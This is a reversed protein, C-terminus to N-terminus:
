GSLEFPAKTGIGLEKVSPRRDFIFLLNHQESAITISYPTKGEANAQFPSAGKEYLFSTMAARVGLDWRDREVGFTVAQHLLRGGAADVPANVDLGHNLLIRLIAKMREPVYEKEADSMTKRLWSRNMLQGALTSWSEPVNPKAGKAILFEVMAVQRAGIAFKLPTYTTSYGWPIENINFKADLLRRAMDIEGFLAAFHLATVREPRVRKRLRSRWIEKKSGLINGFVLQDGTCVADEINDRPLCGIRHLIEKRSLTQRELIGDEVAPTVPSLIAATPRKTNTVDEKEPKGGLPRAEGKKENRPLYTTIPPPICIGSHLSPSRTRPQHSAAPLQLAESQGTPTRNNPMTELDISNVLPRRPAAVVPQADLKEPWLQPPSGASSQSMAPSSSAPHETTVRNRAQQPGAGSLPSSMVPVASSYYGTRGALSSTTSLRSQSRHSALDSEEFISSARTQSFDVHEFKTRLSEEVTRLIAERRAEPIMYLITKARHHNNLLGHIHAMLAMSELSADSEKKLLKRRGRLAKECESHAHDIKGTRIYLLSLLHTADYVCAKQEGSNASLQVLSTLAEEADAPEQTYYACVALRYHLTFMDCFARQHEPLEQLLRLADQLLSDAEYWDQAEFAGVGTKLAAEALDVNFDDDSLDGSADAVQSNQQASVLALGRRLSDLIRIWDAVPMSGSGVAQGGAVSEATLTEEATSASREIVELACELLSSDIRYPQLQPSAESLRQQKEVMDKLKDQESVSELDV